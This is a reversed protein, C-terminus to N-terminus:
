RVPRVGLAIGLADHAKADAVRPIFWQPYPPASKTAADLQALDEADLTVNAAGLNDDLQAARSAGILVCAVAPRTLVWALAIQAVTAGRKAGIAGLLDVLAFGRERDYPLFDFGVLRDGSEGKPKARTYKGSLFGGALPSWAMVGIGADLCFPVVDHELDRGVLSYYMEAARFQGYGRARQIGVAKAALWAPWNSFGVYRVKGQRVVDELAEVTEEVPTLPDIKHPLYVDLYDTGLRELSAEVAALVHRRSLGSAVLADGMRNGLKTAIVVNHRKAGIAKGLIRESEGGAYVDASNFFNIGGDIARAVLDNATSQDVKYVSAFPGAGGTGFTMSGFSLRSVILGTDGLRAYQM